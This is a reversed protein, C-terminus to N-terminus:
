TTIILTYPYFPHPSVKTLHSYVWLVPFAQMPLFPCQGILLARGLAIM